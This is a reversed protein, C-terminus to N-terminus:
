SPDEDDRKGGWMVPLDMLDDDAVTIIGRAAADRMGGRMAATPISLRPGHCPCYALTWSEAMSITGNEVWNAIDRMVAATIRRQEEDDTM